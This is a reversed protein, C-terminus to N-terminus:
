SVLFHYMAHSELGSQPMKRNKNQAVVHVLWLSANKWPEEALLLGADPPILAISHIRLDM